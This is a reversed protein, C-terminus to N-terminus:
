TSFAEQTVYLSNFTKRAKMIDRKTVDPQKYQFYLIDHSYARIM